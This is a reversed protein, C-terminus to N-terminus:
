GAACLTRQWGSYFLALTKFKKEKEVQLARLITEQCIDEIDHFNSTYRRLFKKLITEKEVFVRFVESIKREERKGCPKKLM